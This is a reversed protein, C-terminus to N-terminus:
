LQLVSMIMENFWVDPLELEIDLFRCVAAPDGTIDGPVARTPNAWFGSLFVEALADM